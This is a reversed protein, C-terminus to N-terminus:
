ARGFNEVRSSRRRPFGTSKLQAQPAPIESGIRFEGSQRLNSGQEQRAKTCLLTKQARMPYPGLQSDGSSEGPTKKAAFQPGSGKSRGGGGLTARPRHDCGDASIWLMYYTRLRRGVHDGGTEAPRKCIQNRMMLVKSGRVM